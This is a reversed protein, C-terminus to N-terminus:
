KEEPDPQNNRLYIYVSRTELTNSKSLTSKAKFYYTVRKSLANVFFIQFDYYTLCSLLVSTFLWIIPPLATTLCVTCMCACTFKAIIQGDVM